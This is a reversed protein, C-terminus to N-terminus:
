HSGARSDCRPYHEDIWEMETRRDWVLGNLRADLVKELIERFQPGPEYGMELLDRGTVSIRVSRLKTIYLSIAKRTDERSTKTMMYLLVEIPLSNLAHYIQGPKPDRPGVAMQKLAKEGEGKAALVGTIQKGAIALRRRVAEVAEDELLALLCLFNFLWEQWPIELYLLRFWSSVQWANELITRLRQNLVLDPHIVRLLDFEQMREIIEKPREEQLILKLEGFLRRGDLQEPLEMRIAGQMLYRTQQGLSFGFREAFRLARYIRTPDEVFSLNQIVRIVKDKIDKEGGFFDVLEGFRGPNLRIALTNMTFDRRYLDLKLSSWEVNPLSAPREYYELRATAVDVRFGDPFILQATGFREHSTERAKYRGCIQDAFELGDGEIVIDIDLNERRLLFDRVVGGVLYANMELSEAIKGFEGLREFAHAPLRERMLRAVRKERGETPPEGSVPDRHPTPLSSAISQLLDTRSLLGVLREEKLVPIFRQGSKLLIEQARKLPDEPSLTLFDSSMFERVKNEKLGHYGAKEVVQRTLIGCVKAGVLVPLSNINYRNLTEAAQLITDEAQVSKVPFTMYDRVRNKEEHPKLHETLLALLRERIQFLTLDKVTASAATPHGGGGFARAIEGVDVEPVRSRAVLFIRNEMRALVFLVNLNEMDKLKHVLVALDGVYGDASADAINVDVGHFTYVRRTQILENLLGIQEQTLEPTILDSIANLDAGCRLLYAAAELDNVTTSSFTLSGTDEYIGLMLITAEEPLLPISRERLLEVMLTVSAGYPRYVEVDGHIDRDTPPHHDYVHVEVDPDDLVQQFRGIRDWQRIDVLILKRISALDIRKLKEFPFTYLVSDLFFRRLSREQSGPFVLVADPYLKKAAIMSGLSDFDANVHTTIVEM